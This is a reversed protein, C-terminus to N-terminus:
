TLLRSVHMTKNFMSVDSDSIKIRPDGMMESLLDPHEVAFWFPSKARKVGLRPKLIQKNLHESSTRPDHLLFRVAKQWVHFRDVCFGLATENKDFENLDVRPDKLLILFTDESFTSLM